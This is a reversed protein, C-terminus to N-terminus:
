RAGVQEVLEVRRNKDRGADSANTFVPVLPGVGHAELSDASIGYAQVLEEVVAQARDASLKQNYAFTGKADTHGVVYFAKGPQSKLYAAIQELAAASEPKLTAKDFDFLLGDLVVRGNEALGSGIAEADVVILGTEAEAVEVIDVLTSVRDDRFQYVTVVVYATGAAREKRAVIAGGGGSSSSGRTMENVAASTDQWPNSLFLVERWKRSGVENGRASEETVGQALIEFGAEQLADLYNKYVEGSTREGGDLAYYIRTVLGETDIGEEVQRYGTVPGTLVRYPRHNDVQYWEIVSGPYRTIMPHDQSGEADQAFAASSMLAWGCIFATTVRM